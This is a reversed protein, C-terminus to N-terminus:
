RGRVGGLRRKLVIFLTPATRLLGGLGILFYKM